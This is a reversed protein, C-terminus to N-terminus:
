GEMEDAEAYAEMGSGRYQKDRPLAEQGIGQIAKRAAKFTENQSLYKDNCGAHEAIQKNTWDPHDHLVALALALKSPKKTETKIAVVPAADLPAGAQDAPPRPPLWLVPPPWSFAREAQQCEEYTAGDPPTQFWRVGSKDPFPGWLRGGVFPVWSIWQRSKENRDATELGSVVADAKGELAVLLLACAARMSDPAPRQIVANLRGVLDLRPIAADCKRMVTGLSLLQEAWGQRDEKNTFGYIDEFADVLGQRLDREEDSYREAAAHGSLEKL